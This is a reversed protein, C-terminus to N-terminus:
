RYIGRALGKRRQANLALAFWDGDDLREGYSIARRHM